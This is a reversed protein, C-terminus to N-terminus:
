RREAPRRVPCPWPPSPSGPRPLGCGCSPAENSAPPCRLGGRSRKRRHPPSSARVLRHPSPPVHLRPFSHCRATIQLLDLAGDLVVPRGVGPKLTLPFALGGDLRGNLRGDRGQRPLRHGDDGCPARVCP